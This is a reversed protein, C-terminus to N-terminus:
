GESALRLVRDYFRAVDHCLLISILLVTVVMVADSISVVRRATVQGPRLGGGSAVNQGSCIATQQRTSSVVVRKKRKM